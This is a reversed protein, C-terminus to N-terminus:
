IHSSAEVEVSNIIWGNVQVDETEVESVWCIGGADDEGRHDDFCSSFKVHWLLANVDGRLILGLMVMCFDVSNRDPRIDDFWWGVDADASQDEILEPHVFLVPLQPNTCFAVWGFWLPSITVVFDINQRWVEINPLFTIVKPYSIFYLWHPEIVNVSLSDINHSKIPVIREVNKIELGVLFGSPKSFKMKWPERRVKMGVVRICHDTEPSIRGTSAYFLPQFNNQKIVLVWCTRTNDCLKDAIIDILPGNCFIIM